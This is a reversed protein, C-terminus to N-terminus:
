ILGPKGDFINLMAALNRLVHFPGKFSCGKCPPETPIGDRRLYGFWEGYERDSFHSLSYSAVEDFIEAYVSKGTAYLLLLAANMCENHVWWLKMDHEYAEVPKNEADVFYLIGGYKEDRGRRWADLFITEAFTVLAEDKRYLAEQLLFFACEMDHGPNIIRGDSTSGDYRNDETVNELLVSMEPFYHNKIEKLCLDATAAYYERREADAKRMVYSTNFLIMAESLGKFRRTEPCTKPYIKFPDSSPDIFIGNIMDYVRRASVLSREEGTAMYYEAQALVYFSESFWYRRKRLPKGDATVKFFMRGDTDFCHKDEFDICSKAFSLYEENRGFVNSVHSFTYGCRGQMWVSKDESFIEGTRDLCTYLGGNKEDKGHELWFPICSDFLEEKFIPYYKEKLYDIDKM